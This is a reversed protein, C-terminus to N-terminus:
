IIGYTKTRIPPIMPILTNTTRKIPITVPEKMISIVPAVSAVANSVLIPEPAAPINSVVITAIKTEAIQANIASYPPNAANSLKILFINLPLFPPVKPIPSKTPAMSTAVAFLVTAITIAFGIAFSIDSSYPIEELFAADIRSM